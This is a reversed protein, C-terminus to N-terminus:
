IAWMRHRLTWLFAQKIPPRTYWSPKIVVDDLGLSSPAPSTEEDWLVSVWEEAASIRRRVLRQLLLSQSLEALAVSRSM